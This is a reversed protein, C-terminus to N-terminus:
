LPIVLSRHFLRKHLIHNLRSTMPHSTVLANLVQVKNGSLLYKAIKQYTDKNAAVTVDILDTTTKKRRSTPQRKWHSSSPFNMTTPTYLPTQHHRQIDTILQAFTANLRAIMTYLLHKEFHRDDAAGQQVNNYHNVRSSSQHSNNSQTQTTTTNHTQCINAELYLFDKNYNEVQKDKWTSSDAEFSYNNM